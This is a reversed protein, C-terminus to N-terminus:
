SSRSHWEEFTLTPEQSHQGSRPGSNAPAPDTDSRDVIIRVYDAFAHEPYKKSRAAERQPGPTETM